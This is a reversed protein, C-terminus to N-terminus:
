KKTHTRQLVQNKSLKLCFDFALFIIGENEGNTKKSETQPNSGQLIDTNSSSQTGKNCDELHGRKCHILLFSEDLLISCQLVECLPLSDVGQLHFVALGQLM